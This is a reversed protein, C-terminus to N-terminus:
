AAGGPTRKLAQTPRSKGSGPKLDAEEEIKICLQRAGVEKCYLYKGIAHTCLAWIGVIGFLLILLRTGTNPLRGLAPWWWGLKSAIWTLPVYIVAGSLVFALNSALVFTAYHQAVWQFEQESAALLAGSATAQTIWARKDRDKLEAVGKFSERKSVELLRTRWTELNDLAKGRFFFRAVYRSSRAKKLWGQLSVESLGEIISGILAALPFILFGVLVWFESNPNDAAAGDSLFFGRSQEWHLVLALAIVVGGVLFLAIAKNLTTIPM